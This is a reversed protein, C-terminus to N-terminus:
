SSFINDFTITDSEVSTETYADKLKVYVTKLENTTNTYDLIPSAFDIYAKTSIHVQTYDTGYFPFPFPLDYSWTADLAQWGQAVGTQSFMNTYYNFLLGAM